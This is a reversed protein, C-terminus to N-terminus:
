CRTQELCKECFVGQGGVIFSTNGTQKQQFFIWPIYKYCNPTDCTEYYNRPAGAKADAAAAAAAEAAIEAVRKQYQQRQRQLQRQWQMAYLNPM